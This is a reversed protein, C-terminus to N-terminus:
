GAERRRRVVPNTILVAIAGLTATGALMAVATVGAKDGGTPALGGGTTTSSGGTTTTATTTTATTTTADQKVGANVNQELVTTAPSPTGTTPVAAAKDAAKVTLVPEGLKDPACDLRLLGGSADALQVSLSRLTISWSGAKDVPLKGTLAGAERIKKDAEIPVNGTPSELQLTGVQSGGTVAFTLRTGQYTAAAGSSANAVVGNKFTASIDASGGPEITEPATLKLDFTLAQTQGAEGGVGVCLLAASVDKSTDAALATPGAAAATGALLLTSGM